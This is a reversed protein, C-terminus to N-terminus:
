KKCSVGWIDKAYERITRDSSFKGCKAVNIISKKTWNMEDRYLESVKEQTQCYGKYDACIFFPDSYILNDTLPKFLDGQGPCFFNSQILRIVEELSKCGSIYDQPRYGRRRIEKIDEVRLGFIFINDEGVEKCIEINAGDYTGITLAGNFMFKMCGTGSAETGATSIQESLDSAPFIKEALSVRYDQLFVVKLKDGINKDNNIVGAISNIFKIILKAMFYGPAAKGGLIFTRAVGSSNPNNKIKLYEAIIYLGFLLQRKYEHIRKVQVDFMSDPNPRIATTKYIFDALDKKNEKKIEAWGRCFSRDDILKLLKNTQTLDTIWKSGIHETILLSQKKNAELLWRRQTVGNTKNNFKQPFIEYFDRFLETKLLNSHLESVGNVSHSGVVALYAMRVIKPNGEEIISMRRLRDNDGSFRNSV